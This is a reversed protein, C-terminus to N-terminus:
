KSVMLGNLFDMFDKEHDPLLTRPAYTVVQVTGYEGGYFCGWYATPVADVDAEIKLFRFDAGNIRRQQRFVIRAQPDAAQANALAVDAVSDRPVAIREAIILAHADGSADALTWQGPADHATQKWIVPDYQLSINRNIRLLGPVTGATDVWPQASKPSQGAQTWEMPGIPPRSPVTAGAAAPPPPTHAAPPVEALFRAFITVSTLFEAVFGQIMDDTVRVGFNADAGLSDCGREDLYARTSFHQRNWQNAKMPDFQDAFCASLQLIKGHSRLAVNRGNLPIAFAASDASSKETFSVGMSQLLSRMRAPTIDASGGANGASQAHGLVAALLLISVSLPLTM